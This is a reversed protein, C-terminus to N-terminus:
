KENQIQEIEKFLKSAYLTETHFLRNFQYINLRKLIKWFKNLVFLEHESITNKHKLRVIIEHLSVYEKDTIIIFPHIKIDKRISAYVLYDFIRYITYIANIKSIFKDYKNTM